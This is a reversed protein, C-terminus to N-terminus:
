TGSWGMSGSIAYVGENELSWAHLQKEGVDHLESWLAMM